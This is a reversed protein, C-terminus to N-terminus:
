CQLAPVTSAPWTGADNALAGVRAHLRCPSFRVCRAVVKRFYPDLPLVFHTFAHCTFQGSVIPKQLLMLELAALRDQLVQGPM